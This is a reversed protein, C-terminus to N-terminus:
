YKNATFNVKTVASSNKQLSTFFSLDNNNMRNASPDKTPWYDNDYDYYGGNNITLHTILQDLNVCAIEFKKHPLDMNLVNFLYRIYMVDIDVLTEIALAHPSNVCRVPVYRQGNKLIYPFVEDAAHSSLRIRAMGGIMSYKHGDKSKQTCDNVYKFINQVDDMKILTDTTGFIYKYKSDNHWKNIENILCVEENYMEYGKLYDFAILDRSLEHKQKEFHWVFMKTACCKENRRYIFPIFHGSVNEYGFKGCRTSALQDDM